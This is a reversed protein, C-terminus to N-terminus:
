ARAGETTGAGAAAASEPELHVRIAFDPDDRAVSPRIGARARFQDVVADKVRQEVFLSHDLASEKTQADVVFTGEAALFRSWDITSAGEYLADADRAEFRALRWLVRVATRLRLNARAGANTM